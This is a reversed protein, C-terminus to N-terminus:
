PPDIHTHTTHTHGLYPGAVCTRHSCSGLGASLAAAATALLGAGVGGGFHSMAYVCEVSSM